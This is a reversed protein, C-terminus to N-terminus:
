QAPECNIMWPIGFQDVFMAFGPSWFTKSFPMRIEKANESLAKYVVEAKEPANFLLLVAM